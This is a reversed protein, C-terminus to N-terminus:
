DYLKPSKCLLFHIYIYIYLMFSKNRYCKLCPFYFELIIQRRLYKFYFRIIEILALIFRLLLVTNFQQLNRKLYEREANNIRSHLYNYILVYIKLTIFITILYQFFVVIQCKILYM